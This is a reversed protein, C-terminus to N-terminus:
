KCWSSRKGGAYWRALKESVLVGGVDRGDPAFVRADIRGLYKDDKIDTLEVTTGVPIIEALRGRAAIAMQKESECEGNMEPTDINIIRVRVTIKTDDRLAVVSAFTDGDFIYDVTAPLAFAGGALM